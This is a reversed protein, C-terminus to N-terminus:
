RTSSRWAPISLVVRLWVVCVALTVATFAGLLGPMDEVLTSRIAQLTALAALSLEVVSGVLSDLEALRVPQTAVVAEMVIAILLAAGALWATPAPLRHRRGPRWRRLVADILEDPATAGDPRVAVLVPVVPDAAELAEFCASCSELHRSAQPDRDDALLRRRADECRM